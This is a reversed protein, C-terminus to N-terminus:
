TMPVMPGSAARPGRLRGNCRSVGRATQGPIDGLAGIVCFVVFIGTTLDTFLDLLPLAAVAVASVVDTFISISRRNTRDIVVGM